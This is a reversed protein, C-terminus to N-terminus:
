GESSEKFLKELVLLDAGFVESKGLDDLSLQTFDINVEIEVLSKLEDKFTKEDEPTKFVAMGKSDPALEEGADDKTKAYKKLAVVRQKEYEELEKSMKKAFRGFSFAAKVPLDKTMVRGMSMQMDLLEGVKFQM